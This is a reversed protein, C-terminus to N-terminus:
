ERGCKVKNVKYYKDHNFVAKNLEKSIYNIDSRHSALVKDTKNM